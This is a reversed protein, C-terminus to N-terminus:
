FVIISKLTQLHLLFDFVLLSFYDNVLIRIKNWIFFIQQTKSIQIPKAIIKKKSVM